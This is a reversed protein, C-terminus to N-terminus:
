IFPQPLSGRLTNLPWVPSDWDRLKAGPAVQQLTLSQMQILVHKAWEEVLETCLLGVAQLSAGAM